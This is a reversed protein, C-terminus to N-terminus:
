RASRRPGRAPSSSAPWSAWCSSTTAGGHEALEARLARALRAYPAVARSPAAGDCAKRQPSIFYPHNPENWPTLYRLEAGEAAALDLVGSVLARYAAM